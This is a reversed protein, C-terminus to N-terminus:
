WSLIRRLSPRLQKKLNIGRGKETVAANAVFLRTALQTLASAAAATKAQDLPGGRFSARRILRLLLQGKRVSPIEQYNRRLLYGTFQAQINANVQGALTGLGNATLDVDKQEVQAVHSRLRQTGRPRM